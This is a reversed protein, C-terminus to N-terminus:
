DETRKRSMQNALSAKPAKPTLLRAATTFEAEMLDQFAADPSLDSNTEGASKWAGVFKSFVKDPSMGMDELAEGLTGYDTQFFEKGLLSNIHNGVASLGASLGDVFGKAREIPTDAMGLSFLGKWNFGGGAFDAVKGLMEKLYEGTAGGLTMYKKIQQIVPGAEKMRKDNEAIIKGRLSPNNRIESITRTRQSKVKNLRGALRAEEIKLAKVYDIKKELTDAFEDADVEESKALPAVKSMEEKVIKKLYSQTLKM